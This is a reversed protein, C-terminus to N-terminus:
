WGAVLWLSAIGTTSNDGKLAEPCAMQYLIEEANVSCNYRQWETAMTENAYKRRVRWGM